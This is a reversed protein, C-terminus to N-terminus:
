KIEPVPTGNATNWRTAYSYCSSVNGNHMADNIEEMSKLGGLASDWYLMENYLGANGGPYAYDGGLSVGALCFEGEDHVKPWVSYPKSVVVAEVRNGETVTAPPLGAAAWIDDQRGLTVSLVGTKEHFAANTNEAKVRWTQYVTAINKLDSKLASNAAEKRQNLFAPIAISSLIGIILIVVLLEILTFGQENDVKTDRIKLNPM